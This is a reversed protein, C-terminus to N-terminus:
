AVSNAYQNIAEIAKQTRNLLNVQIDQRSDVGQKSLLKQWHECLHYLYDASLIKSNVSLANIEIAINNSDNVYFAKALRAFIASNEQTYEDIMYLALELSGQNTIYHEFNFCHTQATSAPVDMLGTAKESISKVKTSIDPSALKSQKAKVWPQMAAILEDISSNANLKGIAWHSFADNVEFSLISDLTFVGRPLGSIDQKTLKDEMMFHTFPTCSLETILIAFRGSRWKNELLIESNVFSVQLGMGQLLQQLRQYQEPARVALLVEIPMALYKSTLKMIAQDITPLRAPFTMKLSYQEHETNHVALPMSFSLKYGQETLKANINEGHQCELLTTFYEAPENQRNSEKNFSELQFPLKELNEVGRVQGCFIITQQGVNKDVLQLSLLLKQQKQQSLLLSIFTRFMETFLEADLKVACHINEDIDLLVQNQVATFERTLNLIVSQIQAVLNEDSLTLVADNSQLYRKCSGQKLQSVLDYGQLYAYYLYNDDVSLESDEQTIMATNVATAGLLTLQKIAASYLAKYGQQELMLKSKLRASENFELLELELTLQTQKSEYKIIQATLVEKEQMLMLYEAETYSSDNLQQIKDLLQSSEACYFAKILQTELRRKEENPSSAEIRELACSIYEVGFQSATKIRIRILWLLGCISIFSILYSLWLWIPLSSQALIKQNETANILTNNSDNNEALNELIKKLQQQESVIKQRYGDVLLLQEKWKALLGGKLILDEFHIFYKVIGEITQTDNPQNELAKGYDVILSEGIHVRLQEFEELPIKLSLHQLMSVIASLNSKIEVLLNASESNVGQKSLQIDIADLLTDIQILAKSKLENNRSQNSEIRALLGTAANNDIYWQQYTSHHPSTLLSLKKSQLSLKKQLAISSPASPTQLIEDIVENAKILYAQQLFLTKLPALQNNVVSQTQKSQQFFYQVSISLVSIFILMIVLLYHTFYQHFRKGKNAGSFAVDGNLKNGIIVRNKDTMM